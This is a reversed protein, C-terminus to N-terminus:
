YDEYVVVQMAAIYSEELSVTPEIYHASSVLDPKQVQVVTNVKLCVGFRATKSCCLIAETTRSGQELCALQASDGVIPLGDATKISRIDPVCWPCGATDVVESVAKRM